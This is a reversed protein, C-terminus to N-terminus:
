DHRVIIKRVAQAKKAIQVTLVGRNLEAKVQDRSLNEPLALERRFRGLPRENRVAVADDPQKPSGYRTGQIILRSPEANVELHEEDVGPLDVVATWDSGTEYVDVLPQWVSTSEDTSPGQVREACSEAYLSDMRKKMGMMEKLLARDAPNSL